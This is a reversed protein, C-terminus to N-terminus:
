VTDGAVVSSSFTTALGWHLAIMLKLHIRSMSSRMSGVDLVLIGVGVLLEHKLEVLLEDVKLLNPM